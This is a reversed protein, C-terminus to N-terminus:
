GMRHIKTKTEKRTYKKYCWSQERKQRKNEMKHSKNIPIKSKKKKGESLKTIRKQFKNFGINRLKDINDM